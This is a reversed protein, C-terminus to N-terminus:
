WSSDARNFERKNEKFGGGECKKRALGFPGVWGGPNDVYGHLTLGGALGIPDASVYGGSEADYYRFRNYYLGSEEDELQGQFSLLCTFKGDADNAAQRSGAQVQAIEGWLKHSASWRLEGEESLLEKPTGLHDTVIYSLEGDVGQAIPWFSDQEYHYAVTQERGDAYIRREESLLNGAWLYSVKQAQRHRKNGPQICAKGIRRGFPDYHYDWIADDPTTV